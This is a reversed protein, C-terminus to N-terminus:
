DNNLLLKNKFSDKYANLLKSVKRDQLLRELNQAHREHHLDTALYDILGGKLLAVANDYTPKGYYGTLSLLNLQMEVGQDKLDQYRQPQNRLFLYREPHALIVKYGATGLKFLYEGLYPPESIFSMEVLVRKGPLTLLNGAKIKEGFAEDMLYEAAADIKMKVGAADLAQRVETLKAQIIEPTNPYLDAMIHPTTILREFGMSQLEKILTLSTGIDPAGDDIGPLLHSHLDLGLFNFSSLPPIKKFFNFM